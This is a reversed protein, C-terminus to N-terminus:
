HARILLQELDMNLSASLIDRLLTKSAHIFAFSRKNKSQKQTISIVKKRTLSIIPVDPVSVVGVICNEFQETKSHSHCSLLVESQKASKGMESPFFRLFTKLFNEVRNKGEKAYM